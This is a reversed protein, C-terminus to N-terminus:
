DPLNEAFRVRVENEDPADGVLVAGPIIQRDNNSTLLIPSYENAPRQGLPANGDGGLLQATIKGLLAPSGNIAQVLQNATTPSTPNSNLTVAITSGSISIAPAAGAGLDGTSVNVTFGQGPVDATLQISAEGNSGFGSEASFRDFSGDGGAATIRIGAVTNPDIQQADDFRFVLERPSVTQVSGDTLLDSTNPQIGILQPGVALLQRQELNELLLERVRRKRAQAESQKVSRSSRSKALSSKRNAM